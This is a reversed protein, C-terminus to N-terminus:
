PLGCEAFTPTSRDEQRARPESRSYWPLQANRAMTLEPYSAPMAGAVPWAPHEQEKQPGTAKAIPSKQQLGDRTATERQILCMIM